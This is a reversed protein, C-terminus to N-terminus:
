EDEYYLQDGGSLTVRVIDYETGNEDYYIRATVDATNTNGSVSITDIIRLMGSTPPSCIVVDTTGNSNSLQTGANQTQDSSRIDRFAVIIDLAVSSAAVLDLELQRTTTTLAIM